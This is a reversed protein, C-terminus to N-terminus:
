TTPATVAPFGGIGGGRGTKQNIQRIQELIAALLQRSPEFARSINEGVAAIAVNTPGAVVGRVQQSSEINSRVNNFTERASEEGKKSLFFGAVGALAGFLAGFEAGAVGTIAKFADTMWTQFQNVSDRLFNEFLNKGVGALTELASEGALIGDVIGQGIASSFNTAMRDVEEARVVEARARRVADTATGISTSLEAGAGPKIAELKRQLEILTTLEKETISVEARLRSIPDLLGTRFFLDATSRGAGLEKNLDALETRADRLAKALQQDQAIRNIEALASVTEVREQGLQLILAEAGELTGAAAARKDIEETLLIMKQILREREKLTAELDRNEKEFREGFNGIRFEDRLKKDEAGRTAATELARRAKALDEIEQGLREIEKRQAETPGLLNALVTGLAALVGVAVGIKNPFVSVIGAFTTLADTAVQLPRGFAGGQIRSGFNNMVVQLGLLRNTLTAVRAAFRLTRKEVVDFTQTMQQGARNITGAATQVGRGLREMVSKAETVGKRLSEIQAKLEVVVSGAQFEEAV